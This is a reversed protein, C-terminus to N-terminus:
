IVGEKDQNLLYHGQRSIKVELCNENHSYEIHYYSNERILKEMAKEVVLKDWDVLLNKTIEPIEIHEGLAKKPEVLVNSITQYVLKLTKKNM